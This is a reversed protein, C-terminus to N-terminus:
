CCGGKEASNTNPRNAGAASNINQPGIKIGNVKFSFM